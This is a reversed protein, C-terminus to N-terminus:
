VRIRGRTRWSKLALFALHNGLSVRWTYIEVIVLSLIRYLPIFTILHLVPLVETFLTTIDLGYMGSDLHSCSRTVGTCM